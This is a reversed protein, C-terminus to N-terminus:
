GRLLDVISACLLFRSSLSRLIARLSLLASRSFLERSPSTVSFACNFQALMPRERTRPYVTVELVRPLLLSKGYTIKLHRGAGVSPTHPRLSIVSSRVARASRRRTDQWELRDRHAMLLDRDCVAAAALAFLDAADSIPSHGTTSTVTSTSCFVRSVRLLRSAQERPTTVDDQRGRAEQAQKKDHLARSVLSVCQYVHNCSSIQEIIYAPAVPLSVCYSLSASGLEWGSSEM